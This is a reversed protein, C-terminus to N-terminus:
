FRGGVALGWVGVTPAVSAQNARRGNRGAAMLAIGTILLVGGGIGLGIAAGSAITAQRRFRDAREIDDETPKLNKDALMEELDVIAKERNDAVVLGAGMGLLGLIGVGLSIGGARWMKQERDTSGVPAPEQRPPLPPVTQVAPPRTYVPTTTTVPAPAPSSTPAGAVATASPPVCHPDGPFDRAVDADVQARLGDLGMTEQTASAGLRARLADTHSVLTARWACLQAREHSAEYLRTYTSRLSGLVAERGRRQAVPDPMAAYARQFAALAGAYDGSSYAAKGEADAQTAAAPWSADQARVEGPTAVLSAALVVSMFERLTPRMGRTKGAAGEIRL